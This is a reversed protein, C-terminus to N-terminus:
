YDEIAALVQQAEVLNPDLRLSEELAERAEEYLGQRAMIVGLNMLAEPEPRVKEFERLSEKYRGQEALCIALNIYARDFFPDVETAQRLYYESRELNGRRYNFYGYDNLLKADRPAEELAKGYEENAKSYRNLLDNLVALRHAIFDLKPDLARAREYQMAAESYLGVAELERATAIALRAQDNRSLEGVTEGRYPNHGDISAQNACGTLMFIGCLSVFGIPALSHLLSKM